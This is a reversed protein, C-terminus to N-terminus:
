RVYSTQLSGPEKKKLMRILDIKTGLIELLSSHRQGDCRRELCFMFTFAFPQLIDASDIEKFFFSSSSNKQYTVDLSERKCIILCFEIVQWLSAPEPLSPM